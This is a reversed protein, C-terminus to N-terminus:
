HQKKDAEGVLAYAVYPCSSYRNIRMERYGAGLVTNQEPSNNLLYKNISWIFLLLMM